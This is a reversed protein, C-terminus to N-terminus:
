AFGTVQRQAELQEYVRDLWQRTLGCLDASISKRKAQSDSEFPLVPNKADMQSVTLMRSLEADSFELKWYKMLEPWIAAPLQHYNVLRGAGARVHELAAECLRALVRATYEYLSMKEVTGAVWGFLAPQLVGPIMQGGLQKQASAMVELPERYLFVWPVGPFARQILPLLMVHWCDFKIFLSEETPNRRCALAAVLWQLWIVRQDETIKPDRFHARLVDDIPGAESLVINQPSAALMQSVLTSGCRSMHFIFGRPRVSSIAAIIEGLSELPTQHRFLLDAPHRMCQNITQAFFPDSFRRAGLYGWDVM